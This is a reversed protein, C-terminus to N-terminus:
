GVFGRAILLNISDGANSVNARFVMTHAATFDFGGIGGASAIVNNGAGGFPNTNMVGYATLSSVDRAIEFSLRYNQNNFAQVATDYVTTGDINIFVQKTGLAGNWNGLFLFKAVSGRDIFMGAPLQITLLTQAGTGSTQTDPAQRILLNDLGDQYEYTSIGGAPPQFFKSM